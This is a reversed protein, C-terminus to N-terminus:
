EKLLLASVVFFVVFFLLIIILTKLSISPQTLKISIPHSDKNHIFNNLQELSKDDYYAHFEGQSTKLSLKNIVIRRGRSITKKVEFLNFYFTQKKGFFLPEKELRCINVSYSTYKCTLNNAQSITLLVIFLPIFLKVATLVIIQFIKM